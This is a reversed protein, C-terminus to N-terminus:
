CDMQGPTAKDLTRDAACIGSLCSNVSNLEMALTLKVENTKFTTLIRIQNREKVTSKFLFPLLTLSLKIHCYPPSIAEYFTQAARPFPYLFCTM